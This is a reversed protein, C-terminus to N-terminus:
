NTAPSDGEPTKPNEGPERAKGTPVSRRGMASSRGMPPHGTRRTIKKLQELRLLHQCSPATPGLKEPRWTSGSQSAVRRVQLSFIRWVGSWAAREDCIPHTNFYPSSGFIGKGFFSSLGFGM